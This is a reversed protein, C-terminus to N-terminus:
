SRKGYSKIEDRKTDYEFDKKILEKDEEVTKATATHYEDAEFAVM